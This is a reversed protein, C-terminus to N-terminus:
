PESLGAAEWMDKLKVQVEPSAQAYTKQFEDKAKEANEPDNNNTFAKISKILWEGSSELRDQLRAIIGLNNYITASLHENGWLETSKLSKQYLEEAKEFEKRIQSIMGLKSYIMPMSRESKVKEFYQLSQRYWREATEFDGEEQAINGFTYCNFAVGYEIGIKEAYELSKQSYKKASEFDRNKIAIYALENNISSIYYDDGIKEALKVSKDHWREALELNNGRQLEIRGFSYLGKLEWKQDGVAKAWELMKNAWSEAFNLQRLEIDLRWNIFWWQPLDSPPIDDESIKQRLSRARHLDFLSVSAEFMPLYYRRVLIKQEIENQIAEALQKELVSLQQRSFQPSLLGGSFSFVNDQIDIQEDSKEVEPTIRLKVSMWDALHDAVQLLMRYNHPLLFFIVHCNLAAWSERLGNMEVWFPYRKGDDKGGDDIIFVVGEEDAWNESIRRAQYLLPSAGADVSLSLTENPREGIEAQLMKTLENARYVTDTEVATLAAISQRVANKLLELHEGAESV